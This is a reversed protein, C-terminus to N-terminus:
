YSSTILGTDDSWLSLEFSNREKVLDNLKARNVIQENISSERPMAASAGM